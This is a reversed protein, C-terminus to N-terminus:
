RTRSRGASESPTAVAALLSSYSSVLDAREQDILPSRPDCGEAVWRDSHRMASARLTAAQEVSADPVSYVYSYTASLARVLERDDDSNSDRQLERHARWWEVELEAARVPDFSERHRHAVLEYFRRMYARAADPDNDPVPAWVQNARLVLWGGRM